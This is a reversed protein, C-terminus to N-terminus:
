RRHTTGCSRPSAAAVPVPGADTRASSSSSRREGGDGLRRAALRVVRTYGGPRDAFRTALEDFLIDVAEEDRLRSFARRRLAVYARAANWKQWGDGERWTRTSPPARRRPAHRAGGGSRRPRRSEQGAHDAEGRVAAAGQGEAHDHRDARLGEAADPDDPDPRVSRILSAAMNKFMAKRHSANRGLKRGRMRHRMVPPLHSNPTPFSGGPPHPRPSRNAGVPLVRLAPPDRDGPKSRKMDVRLAFKEVEVDAGAGAHRAPARQQQLRERVEVLTTDGFNRVQLLEDENKSM